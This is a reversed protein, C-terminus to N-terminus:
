YIHPSRLFSSFEKKYGNFVNIDVDGHIGRVKGDPCLQWFLLQVDPKYEGYRAIWVQYNDKIDPALPLYKNVFSQSIYLVPKRGTKQQVIKLWARVRAWMVEAGGMKKIQSPFPEVDLVPPFDGQAVWSNKLFNNAQETASSTTSFFHYTGVRYGHAKADRYDKRYFKNVVTKGETSKIYIFSIPYDISGKVKKKSIYGLSTIRLKGWDIDYKHKGKIHQHKSIDIGYIRDSTYTLREGKFVDKKWEGVRLRGSESFAVGWGDRQGENWHGEYINGAKSVLIGHGHYQGKKNHEGYYHVSATDPQTIRNNKIAMEIASPSPFYKRVVDPRKSLAYAENPTNKNTTQLVAYNRPNDKHQEVFNFKIRKDNKATYTEIKRIKIDGKGENKQLETLINLCRVSSDLKAHNETAFKAVIDYGEDQVGHVRLYYRCNNQKTKGVKIIHKLTDIEHAILRKLNINKTNIDATDTKLTVLKGNCSPVMWFSNMWYGQTLRHSKNISDKNWSMRQMMTDASIDAMYLMPKGNQTIEYYYTREVTIRSAKLEENNDPWLRYTTWILTSLTALVAILAPTFRKEIYRIEMKSM